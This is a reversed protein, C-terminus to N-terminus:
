ACLFYYILNNFTKYHPLVNGYLFLDPRPSSCQVSYLFLFTFIYPIKLGM